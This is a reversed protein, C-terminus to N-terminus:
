LVLRKDGARRTIRHLDLYELLPIAYKRSLGGISKFTPVDILRDPVTVAHARIKSILEQLAPGYLLLDPTVRVLLGDDLLLQLIKRAHAEKVKGGGAQALAEPWTPASLGAERYVRELGDRLAADAPVLTLRHTPLRVLDKESLLKGAAELEQLLGRFIEPATHAFVKERLTERPLGKALPEARHQAAVTELASHALQTWVTPSLYVGDAERLDQAALAQALADTLVTERWGTRALLDARRVGSLGARAAYIKVMARPDATRLEQLYVRTQAVERGRQKAALPDLVVGGAMTRAPSYTRVIFREQAVAVVPKELRLQVLGSAGSAIEGGAELVRVRALAEAAGLHVRVRARNRVARPADPLVELHVDLIQTPRLTHPAALVMGRELAATEVGGLNVATRQGAQAKNVGAGHVQLGRVRVKAGMPMLELEQSEHIEGAVLTGTVVAGFGHRSFARDVPLRASSRASREPVALALRQLTQQLEEVGAGTKASVPVIPAGDLFSNAALEEAEATVLELLDADVLDAKTLVILGAPVGLLRCIDFHERTQPMVGEDAALVLAVLDIGHVGALMNKVFREHGPVDVFGLRVTGLDLEAFGLDITIGRKKEEPLRDADVGTLARVLATKGHDIHGATGVIISRM